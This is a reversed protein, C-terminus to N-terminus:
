SFRRQIINIAKLIAEKMEPLLNGKTYGEVMSRWLDLSDADDTSIHGKKINDSVRKMSDLVSQFCEASVIVNRGEQYVAPDFLASDEVARTAIELMAKPHVSLKRGYESIKNIITNLKKAILYDDSKSPHKEWLYYCNIRGEHDIDFVDWLENDKRIQVIVSAQLVSKHKGFLERYDEPSSMVGVSPSAYAIVGKMRAKRIQAEFLKAKNTRIVKLRHEKKWLSYYEIREKSSELAARGISEFTNIKPRSYGRVFSGITKHDIILGKSKLADALGRLTFDHREYAKLLL